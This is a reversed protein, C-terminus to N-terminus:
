ALANIDQVYGHALVPVALVDGPAEAGIKRTIKHFRRSAVPVRGMFLRQYQQAGVDGAGDTEPRFAFGEGHINGPQFRVGLRRRQVVTQAFADCRQGRVAFAMRVVGYGSINRAFRRGPPQAQGPEPRRHM